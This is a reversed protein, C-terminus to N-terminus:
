LYHMRPIGDSDTRNGNNWEKAPFYSLCLFYCTLVCACISHNYDLLHLKSKTVGVGVFLCVILCFLVVFLVVLCFLWGFLVFM